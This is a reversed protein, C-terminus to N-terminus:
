RKTAADRLVDTRRAVEGTDPSPERYIHEYGCRSCRMAVGGGAAPAAPIGPTEGVVQTCRWSEATGCGPCAAPVVLGPPPEGFRPPEPPGAARRLLDIWDDASAPAPVDPNM